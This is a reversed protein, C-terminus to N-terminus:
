VGKSALYLSENGDELVKTVDIGSGKWAAIQEDSLTRLFLAVPIGSEMLRAIQERQPLPSIANFRPFFIKDSRESIVYTGETLIGAAQDRIRTYRALEAGNRSLGEDDRSFASWLGLYGTLVIIAVALIQGRRGDRQALWGSLWALSFAGIAALPITYRLFSNALSIENLRVHDQYIGQGYVLATIGAVWAALLIFRRNGKERWALLAAGLTVAAWPALFVFIYSKVNYWVNRPHFGFPWAQWWTRSEGQSPVPEAGALYTGTESIQYGFVLSSAYTKYGLWAGVLGIIALPSIFYYINRKSFIRGRGMVIIVPIIWFIETPRIFLALGTLLGALATTPPRDFQWILWAAWITLCLAPLNPFLGRNAYLIVTPFTLWCVAAAFQALRGLPRTMGLLPIIVSLALIPIIFPLAVDGVITIM